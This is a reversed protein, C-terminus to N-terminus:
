KGGKPKKNLEACKIWSCWIGRTENPSWNTHQNHEIICQNTHKKGKIWEKKPKPIKIAKKAM